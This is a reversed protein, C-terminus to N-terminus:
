ERGWLKLAAREYVQHVYQRSVGFMEAVDTKSLKGSLMGYRVAQAIYKEDLTLQSTYINNIERANIHDM